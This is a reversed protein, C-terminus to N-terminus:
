WPGDFGAETAGEVGDVEVALDREGLAAEVEVNGLEHVGERKGEGLHGDQAHVPAEEARRADPAGNLSEEDRGDHPEDDAGEHGDEVAHGHVGEPVVRHLARPAVDVVRLEEEPRHQHVQQDIEDHQRQRHHLHPIQV